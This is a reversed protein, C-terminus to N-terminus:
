MKPFIRGFKKWSREASNKKFSVCRKEPFQSLEVFHFTWWFFPLAVAFDERGLKRWLHTKWLHTWRRNNNQHTQKQPAIQFRFRSWVPAAFCSNALPTSISHQLRSCILSNFHCVGWSVCIELVAEVLLCVNQIWHSVVLVTIFNAKMVTQM